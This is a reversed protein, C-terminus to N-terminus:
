LYGHELEKQKRFEIASALADEYKNVNFKKSRQRGNEQWSVRYSNGEFCIGNCGFKNDSRVDMNKKNISNNVTRLNYKRNNLGNRDIHDILINSDTIDLLYRHLKGLKDHAVYLTRSNQPINIHWKFNEVKDIDELDIYVNYINDTPVHYIKIVAYDEHKEILNYIKKKKKFSENAIEEALPGYKNVSYTYQKGNFNASYYNKLENFTVAM